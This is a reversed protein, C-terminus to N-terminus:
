GFLVSLRRNMRKVKQCQKEFMHIVLSELTDNSRKYPAITQQQFEGNRDRPIKLQLDGYEYSVRILRILEHKTATHLIRGYVGNRSNGSNIGIRDYKEYALFATLETQLLQNMASELHSRFVETIDQKTVLAQILDTTLHNM